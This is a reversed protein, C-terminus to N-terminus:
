EPRSILGRLSLDYVVDEVRKVDYKLGDARRRLADNKLNLLQFAAFIHKIFDAITLPLSFDGLTVANSALRALDQTLDPLTLLYQEITLHFADRDTLNIPIAFISGVQDLTLLHGVHSPQGNAFGGLWACYIATCMANQVARSWKNNYKYYPHQSALADLEHIIPIQQRVAEEVQAALQDYQAPRTSHVRSLLGQASAVARDLRQVIQGIADRVQAEQELQAELTAFISPDLFSSANSAM